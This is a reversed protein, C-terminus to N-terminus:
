FNHTINNLVGTEHHGLAKLHNDHPQFVSIVTCSQFPRHTMFVPDSLSPHLSFSVLTGMPM